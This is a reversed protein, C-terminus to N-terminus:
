KQGMSNRRGRIFLQCKSNPKNQIIERPTNSKSSWVSKIYNNTSKTPFSFDQSNRFSGILGKNRFIVSQIPKTYEYKPLSSCKNQNKVSHVPYLIDVSDYISSINESDMQSVEKTIDPSQAEKRKFKVDKIKQHKTYKIKILKKNFGKIFDKQSLKNKKLFCM